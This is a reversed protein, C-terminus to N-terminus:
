SSDAEKADEPQNEPNEPHPPEQRTEFLRNDENAMLNFASAGGVHSYLNDSTVWQGGTEEDDYKDSNDSDEQNVAQSDEATEAQPDAQGKQSNEEEDSDAMMKKAEEVQKLYKKALDNNQAGRAGKGGEGKSPATDNWEDVDEVKKPKAEAEDSDDGDEYFQKFSKPRFEELKKPMLQVLSHEGKQRSLTLGAAIVMQDVLSLTALDGTEKAFAEVRAQDRQEVFSTGSLIDM